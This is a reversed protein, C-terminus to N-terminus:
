FLCPLSKLVFVVLLINLGYKSRLVFKGTRSHNNMSKRVPGKSEEEEDSSDLFRSAGGINKTKDRREDGVDVPSSMRSAEDESSDADLSM